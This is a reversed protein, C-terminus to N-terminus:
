SPRLPTKKEDQPTPDGIVINQWHLPEQKGLPDVIAITDWRPDNKKWSLIEALRGREWEGVGYKKASEYGEEGYQVEVKEGRYKPAPAREAQEVFELAEMARIKLQAIEEELDALNSKAYSINRQKAEEAEARSLKHKVIRYRPEHRKM